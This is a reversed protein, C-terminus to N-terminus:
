LAKPHPCNRAALKQGPARERSATVVIREPEQLSLREQDAGDIMAVHLAAVAGANVAVALGLAILRIGPKM